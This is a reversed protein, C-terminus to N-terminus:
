SMCKIGRCQHVTIGAPIRRRQTAHRSDPHKPPPQYTLLLPAALGLTAIMLIVAIDVSLDLRVGGPFVFHHHTYLLDGSFRRDIGQACCQSVFDLCKAQYALDLLRFGPWLPLSQELVAMANHRDDEFATQCLNIALKEWYVASKRMDEARSAHETTRHEAMM